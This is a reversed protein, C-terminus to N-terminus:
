LLILILLLGSLVGFFWMTFPQRRRVAVAMAAAMSFIPWLASGDLPLLERCLILARAMSVQEWAVDQSAAFFRALFIAEYVFLAISTGALLWRWKGRPTTFACGMLGACLWIPAALVLERNGRWVFWFAAAGTVLCACWIARWRSFRAHYRSESGVLVARHTAYLSIAVAWLNLNSLFHTAGERHWRGALDLWFPDPGWTGALLNFLPRTLASFYAFRYEFLWCLLLVVVPVLLFAAYLIRELTKELTPQILRGGLDVPASFRPFQPYNPETESSIESERLQVARDTKAVTATVSRLHAGWEQEQALAILYLVQALALLPGALGILDSLRLSIGVGAVNASSTEVKQQLLAKELDLRYALLQSRVTALTDGVFSVASFVPQDAAAKPPEPYGGSPGYETRWESDPELATVQGTVMWAVAAPTMREAYLGAASRVLGEDDNAWWASSGFTDLIHDNFVCSLAEPEAGQLILTRLDAAVDAALAIEDKGELEPREKSADVRRHLEAKWLNDSDRWRPEHMLGTPVESIVRGIRYSTENSKQVERAGTFPPEWAQIVLQVLPFLDAQGLLDLREIMENAHNRRAILELRTEKMGTANRDLALSGALLFVTLGVIVMAYRSSALKEHPEALGASM